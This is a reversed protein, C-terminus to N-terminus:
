MRVTVHPVKQDFMIESSKTYTLTLTAGNGPGGARNTTSRHGAGGGGGGAAGSPATGGVAHNAGGAGGDGGATGTGGSQGTATTGAASGGSGEGGGGGVGNIAGGGFGGGGVWRVDGVSAATTGGAGGTGQAGNTGADGGTGGAAVCGNADNSLFWTVGGDNGKGNTVGTGGTGLVYDYVTGPVVAFTRAASAGGGGGGGAGRADTTYNGGGAGGAGLCNALVVTVNLPCTWTTGTTLTETVAGDSQTTWTQDSGYATGIGNVAYARAHYATNKQLGSIAVTFAGTTGAAMARDNATTPNAGTGWCVGRETVADGGDSTVNGNGTARTQGQLTPAQTTVTPADPGLSLFFAVHLAAFSTTGVGGDPGSTGTAGKSTQIVDAITTGGHTVRLNACAGAVSTPDSGDINGYAFIVLDNDVTPSVSPATQLSESVSDAQNVGSVDVRGAGSGTAGTYAACVASRWNSTHPVWAWSAGESSAIKWFTWVTFGGPNAESPGVQWNAPVTDFSNTDDELYFVVVLLDGDQVGSPKTITLSGGSANGATSTGNPTRFVYGM